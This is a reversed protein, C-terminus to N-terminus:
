EWVGVKVDAKKSVWEREAQNKKSKPKYLDDVWLNSDRFISGQWGSLLITPRLTHKDLYDQDSNFLFEIMLCIEQNTYNGQVKSLVGRDKILSPVYRVGSKETNYIFFMLLDNSNFLDVNDKFNDLKCLFKEEISQVKKEPKKEEMKKCKNKVKKFEALIESRSSM